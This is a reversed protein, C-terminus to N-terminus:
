CYVHVRSTKLHISSQQHHHLKLLALPVFEGVTSVVGARESGVSKGFSIKGMTTGALKSNISM